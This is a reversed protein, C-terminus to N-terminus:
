GNLKSIMKEQRTMGFEWLGHAEVVAPAVHLRVPKHLYM